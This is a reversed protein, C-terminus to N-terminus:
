LGRELGLAFCAWSLGEPRGDRKGGLKSYDGYTSAYGQIGYCGGREIKGDELGVFCKSVNLTHQVAKDFVPGPNGDNLYNAPLRDRRILARAIRTALDGKPRRYAWDRGSRIIPGVSSSLSVSAPASAVPLSFKTVDGNAYQHSFGLYRAGSLRTYDAVSLFGLNKAGEISCVRHNGMFTDRGAGFVEFSVHGNEPGAIDWFHFDGPRAKTYDTSVITSRTYVHFASHVDGTPENGYALCLRSAVTGCDQDWDYDGGNKHSHPTPYERAFEHVLEELTKM